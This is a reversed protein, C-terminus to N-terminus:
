YKENRYREDQISKLESSGTWVAQVPDTRSAKEFEHPDIDIKGRVFEPRNFTKKMRAYLGPDKQPLIFPKGISDASHFYCLYPRAALGDDRKSSFVLWRGNSSWSHYSESEDSNVPMKSVGGGSTDLIYLDAERHWISFTGYDHLTFIVSRGDPSVVPFSVSKGAASANFQIEPKGFSGSERSFPVKVLDYKVDRFDFGEKVQPTRCYYLCSGDPSWCPFTEMYDVTDKQICDMIENRKVDYLVLSSFLDFVEINKEPRSHFAQVTKNSSFVIYDGSPHWSPYVTNAPMNDTKLSHRVIKGNESFYTGSKSGRVHLLMKSPDNNFFSHCNVCNNELLQNELISKESFDETSRQVIKMDLWAEYGPYLIRYVLYPDIQEETIYMNFPMFERSKESGSDAVIAITIRGGRNRFLLKKWAKMPFRVQGGSSKVTLSSGDTGSVRIKYTKCNERIIFNMPAINWPITAESYDPETLPLRETYIVEKVQRTSDCNMFLVPLFMILFLGSYEITRIHVLKRLFKM